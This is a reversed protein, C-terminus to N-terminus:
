YERTFISIQEFMLTGLVYVVALLLVTVIIRKM